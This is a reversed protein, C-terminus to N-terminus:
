SQLLRLSPINVKKVISAKNPHNLSELDRFFFIAKNGCEIISFDPLPGAISYAEIDKGHVRFHDHTRNIIFYESRGDANKVSKQVVLSKAIAESPENAEGNGIISRDCFNLLHLLLNLPFVYLNIIEKYQSPGMQWHYPPVGNEKANSLHVFWPALGENFASGDGQLRIEAAIDKHDVLYRYLQKAQDSLANASKTQQRQLSASKVRPANRALIKLPSTLSHEEITKYTWRSATSFASFGNEALTADVDHQNIAEDQIDQEHGTEDMETGLPKGGNENSEWNLDNQSAM